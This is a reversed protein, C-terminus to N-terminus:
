MWPKEALGPSNRRQGVDHCITQAGIDIVGPELGVAPATVGHALARNMAPAIIEGLGRDYPKRFAKSDM